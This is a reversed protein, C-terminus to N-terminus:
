SEQLGLPLLGLSELYDDRPIGNEDWGSIRYYEDLLQDLADKGFPPLESTAEQLIRNPLVDDNRNIGERVNFAREISALLALAGMFFLVLSTGTLQGSNIKDITELM